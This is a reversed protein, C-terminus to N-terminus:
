YPVCLGECSTSACNGNAQAYLSDGSIGCNHGESSVGAGQGTSTLFTNILRWGGPCSTWATSNRWGCDGVGVGVRIYDKGPWATRCDGRICVANGASVSGDATLNGNGGWAGSVYVGGRNLLYLNEEGFIHMRGPAYFTQGAGMTIGGPNSINGGQDVHFTGATWSSNLVRFTGNINELYLNAGNNGMLKITGGEGNVSDVQVYGNVDLKANPNTGIGVNGGNYYISSGNQSWLSNNPWANKCDGNICIKGTIDANGTINLGTGRITGNVDLTAQPNNTGIGVLGRDVILGLTAGGTNLILGGTKTQGTNGTNIPAAINGGPPMQDPEVWASVTHITFGIVLVIGTYLFLQYFKHNGKVFADTKISVDLKPSEVGVYTKKM